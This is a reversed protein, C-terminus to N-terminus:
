QPLSFLYRVLEDEEKQSFHYPPMISGPSVQRPAVFHAHLWERTRRDGLGNLQPGM